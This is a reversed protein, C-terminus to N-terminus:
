LYSSIQGCNNLDVGPM